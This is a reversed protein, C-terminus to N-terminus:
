LKDEYIEVSEARMMRQVLREYAEQQKQRVLEQMVKPRVEDLSKTRVVNGDEDKETYRERHAKYYLEVDSEGINVEKSIEEELLKQVMLNKKAQFAGDIVSQDKELGRRKATDYLLETAIFQKLFDARQSRETLQSKVFAPLQSIEYDLDGTSISRRGIKAVVEGPRRPKAQTPDLLASEELVQQADASRDLRELCEVIRKNVDDLLTAEPYFHKIKLYYTLANEYNKVREFYINAINYNINAAEDPAPQYTDLYYLYQDVAQQYLQRNYLASAYDRVAEGSFQASEQKQCGVVAAISLVASSILFMKWFNM